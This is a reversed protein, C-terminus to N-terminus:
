VIGKEVMEILRAGLTDAREDDLHQLPGEIMLMALGHVASWALYEAGPRRAADLVGADVMQDLAASLLQFPNLGSHGARNPDPTQWAEQPAAFATRFLGTQERAFRLYGTGVARLSARAADARRRKRPVAALENEMAVAVASLATSRVAALLEQQSAFYRYAANPVVGARRTAERLTVADPGGQRAIEIGADLLARRLDGHRYTSRPRQNTM